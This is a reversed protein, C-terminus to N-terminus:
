FKYVDSFLTEDQEKYCLNLGINKLIRYASAVNHYIISRVDILPILEVPIKEALPHIAIIKPYKNYKNYFSIINDHIDTNSQKLDDLYIKSPPHINLLPCKTPLKIEDYLKGFIHNWGEASLWSSSEPKKYNEYMRVSTYKLYTTEGNYLSERIKNEFSVLKQIIDTPNLKSKQSTNLIYTVYDVFWLYSERCVSSSRLTVGKLDLKPKDLLLGEQITQLGLYNKKIDMLLLVSYLFENKMSLKGIDEQSVGLQHVFINITREIVQTILYVVFSSIQYNEIRDSFEDNKYWKVWNILTFINSDTDLLLINKRFMNKKTQLSPPIFSNNIFVDFLMQLKNVTKQYHNGIDIIQSAIEPYKEPIEEIKKGSILHSNCTTIVSMLEEKVNFMDNPDISTTSNINDSFMDEIMPKFINENKMFLHVLNNYYYIYVIEARSLNKIINLINKRLEIESLLINYPSISDFLFELLDEMTPVFLNYHKVCEVISEKSPVTRKCLVIHNILDNMNFFCFNGGAFQEIMTASMTVVTRGTSTISNYNGKDYFLNYASKMIGSVANAKIKANAQRFNENEALTYNKEKKAKFMAKKAKKRIDKLHTMFQSVLNKEEETRKYVSGAPSIIHHKESLEKMLNLLPTEKEKLDGDHRVVNVISCDIIKQKIDQKVFERIKEKDDNTVLHISEVINEVIEESFMERM